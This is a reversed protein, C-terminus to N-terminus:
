FNIDPLIDAPYGLIFLIICYILLIVPIAIKFLPKETKHRFLLMAMLAGFAGGFLALIILVAEPWRMKGYCAQHKDNGYVFFTFCNIIFFYLLYDM